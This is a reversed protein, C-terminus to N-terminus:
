AVTADDQIMQHLWRPGGSAVYSQTRTGSIVSAAIANAVRNKQDSVHFITWEEFSHLINLIQLVLPSLEPISLPNLLSHRIEESSAEFLIKKHRLDGMARIAWLLIQLDAERKSPYHALAQRSHHIPTGKWDRVIWSAGSVSGNTVRAMGINCKVMDQPPKAWARPPTPLSANTTSSPQDNHLVQYWIDAEELAKEMISHPTLLTKEFVLTNRGKWLNWLIWPFAKLNSQESQQKKTGAVLFHLNLFVSSQSFGNPPSQIGALNWAAVATPCNFLVHCITEQAQGCALCTANSSLGRYQLREAVALAGSLARWLFHRIKPATKLKWINKWLQKEVPPLPKYDPSSTEHIVSLMRYASQTTYMGNKTFGWVDTDPRNPVPKIQLIKLADEETFTDFFMQSNWVQSNPLWLDKVKLTLDVVSDQKYMPPRSVNELLWNSTWVNTQEGDGVVRLLGSNLAERGHLISRWIFSPRSGLNAELFSSNKFYRSKLVRAMLSDPQSLVRWAQKGLLAQNFRGIDHFGLGGDEKSKTLTDWAVWPMKRRSGGNSWWFERMASTLKSCLDQPLKYVSMAYVPLALAISKLLIEKGGQSLTQAFWGHLRHQLKERIYNLIRKKSGKFVEPLGLYTGEGGEKDIRLIQKIDAKMGEQVKEGFIISSKAPNIQQGSAEGYLKLCRLIEVSEMMDAKCMLLSDDAFLLHHVAPGNKDLKIGNLRGAEEAKNLVSVLAEAAMIFIFPSMPDGQRIGREPRFFGHTRGNLLITYSVTSVCAMVWCVWKRDFGMKELLTELFNWEVHDYAKSMDTKIAMYQKSISEKTRLNHIMEHAVIINDSILRGEVFAGQTDSIIDGM